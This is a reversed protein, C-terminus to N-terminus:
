PPGGVRLGRLKFLELANRFTAEAVEEVELGKIAAIAEVAKPLNAPENRVGVEPGLVPSDTEVLLNELPLAKALKKKQQSRVISTPISFYFGGERAGRLAWGVRGDFAHMLVRDYGEELLIQVAYKGASRSHVVLPLGLEEALRIWRRFREEQKRKGEGSRVWYFDLGVEGIAVIDHKLEGALKMVAELEDEDDITPDFGLCLFVVGQHARSIELAKLADEQDLSSTLMAVVGAELARKIVAERDADFAEDELHCHADILRM